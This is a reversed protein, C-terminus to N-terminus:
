TGRLFCVVLHTMADKRQTGITPKKRDHDAENLEKIRYLLHNRLSNERVGQKLKGAAQLFMIEQLEKDKEEKLEGLVRRQHREFANLSAM